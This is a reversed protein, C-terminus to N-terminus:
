DEELSIGSKKIMNGWRETEKSVYSAFYEPTSGILQTENGLRKIVEPSKVAKALESSLLNVIAAPTRAPAVVGQWSAYEFDKWGQEILTPLDPFAPHRDFNAIGLPKARGSKMHTLGSVFSIPNMHVRGSLLDPIVQAASKYHVFNLKVGTLEEIWYGTLHQQTGVGNTAYNIKGPNAKTYEVFEAVNSPISPHVLITAWRKSVLSVPAFATRPDFSLEIKRLPIVSYSSSVILLTYGDAPQKAAYAMGIVSGGGPKFDFIFQQKLSKSVEGFHVRGETEGASAPTFPVVVTVPKNPYPQQSYASMSVATLSSALFALLVNKCM